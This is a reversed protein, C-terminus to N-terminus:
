EEETPFSEHVMFPIETRYLGIGEAGQELCPSIDSLLGTNAYLPVRFGDTTVAPQDKLHELGSILDRERDVLLQFEGVLARSPNFIVEGHNGDIVALCNERLDKIEGTGMVAPLGLANALIATHSLASGAACLIGALRDTRHSAIDTISVLEGALILSEGSEAAPATDDRLRAQLKRGINRIDEGRARFYPDEMVDFVGAYEDITARIAGPAWNGARIKRGIDSLLNGSDLLTRYVSFIAGVDEPVRDALARSGADLEERMQQVAVQFRELEASFDDIERDAVHSPDVDSVLHIRGIGVGGSGKIGVIRHTSEPRPIASDGDAPAEVTPVIAALHAAITVLFAEEEDSFRRKTQEQVVLVGILRRLHVLPVGMFACYREEHTEPFYRFAPHRAADEVNLPHRSSAITGVLGEGAKLKVRGISEPDLGETAALTLVGLADALYLSCVGVGMAECVASVIYSMQKESSAATAAQQAIQKLKVLSHEM